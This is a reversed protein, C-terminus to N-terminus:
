AGLLGAGCGMARGAGSRARWAVCASVRDRVERLVAKDLGSRRLFAVVDRASVDAQGSPNAAQVCRLGGRTQTPFSWARM